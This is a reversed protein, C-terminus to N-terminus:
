EKVGSASYGELPLIVKYRGDDTSLDTENWDFFDQPFDLNFDWEKIVAIQRRYMFGDPTFQQQEIVKPMRINLSEIQEFDRYLRVWSLYLTQDGPNSSDKTRGFYSARSKFNEERFVEPLGDILRVHLINYTEKNFRSILYVPMGVSDKILEVESKAPDISIVPGPITLLVTLQPMCADAPRDLERGQLSGVHSKNSIHGPFLGEIQKVGNSFHYYQGGGGYFRLSGLSPYKEFQSIVELRYITTGRLVLGGQFVINGEVFLFWDNSDELAGYKKQLEIQELIAKRLAEPDDDKPPEERLQMKLDELVERHAVGVEDEQMFDQDYYLFKMEGNQIHTKSYNLLKILTNSEM